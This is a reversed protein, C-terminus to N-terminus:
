RIVDAQQVSFGWAISCINFYLIIGMGVAISTQYGILYATERPSGNDAGYM